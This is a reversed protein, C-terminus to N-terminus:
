IKLKGRKKLEEIIGEFHSQPYAGKVPVGNLLFGPTGTFGFKTGEAKDAEIRAKVKSSKADAEVKAVDVKLKAVVEKMYKEKGQKLKAQNKYLEDHFEIAKKPDQLRLAEYYSAATVALAGGIVPMHKYVFRIKGDYKKLLGMVTEYGKTCFYCFFDSYEVLTIPADKNGRFLEDSRFSATLPKDYTKELEKKKSAEEADRAASRIADMVEAPNKKIVEVLIDPNESLIKKLSEKSVGQGGQQCSIMALVSVLVLLKKM